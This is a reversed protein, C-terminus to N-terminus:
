RHQQAIQGLKLTEYDGTTVIFDATQKDRRRKSAKLKRRVEQPHNMM